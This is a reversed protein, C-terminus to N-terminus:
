IKESPRNESERLHDNTLTNRGLYIGPVDDIDSFYDVSVYYPCPQQRKGGYTNSLPLNRSLGTPLVYACTVSSQYILPFIDASEVFFRGRRGWMEHPRFIGLFRLERWSSCTIALSPQKIGSFFITRRM